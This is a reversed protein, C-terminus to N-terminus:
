ELEGLRLLEAVPLALVLSHLCQLLKALIYCHVIRVNPLEFEELNDASPCIKFFRLFYIISCIQKVAASFRFSFLSFKIKKGM